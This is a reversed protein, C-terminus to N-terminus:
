LAHILDELGAKQRIEDVQDVFEVLASSDIPQAVWTIRACAQLSALMLEAVSLKTRPLVISLSNGPFVERFVLRWTTEEEESSKACIANASMDVYVSFREGTPDLEAMEEVFTRFRPSTVYLIGITQRFITSGHYIMCIHSDLQYLLESDRRSHERFPLVGSMAETVKTFAGRDLELGWSPLTKMIARLLGEKQFRANTLLDFIFGSRSINFLFHRPTVPLSLAGLAISQIDIRRIFIPNMAEEFDGRTYNLPSTAAWFSTTNEPERMRIRARAIRHQIGLACARDEPDLLTGLEDPDIPRIPVSEMIETIIQIDDLLEISLKEITHVTAMDCGMATAWVSWKATTLVDRIPELYLFDHGHYAERESDWRRLQASPSIDQILRDSNATKAQQARGEEPGIDSLSSIDAGVQEIKSVDSSADPGGKGTNEAVESNAGDSPARRLSSISKRVRQPPRSFSRPVPFCLDLVKEGLPLCGAALWFLCGVSLTDPRLSGRLLRNYPALYLRDLDGSEERNRHRLAGISGYLVGREEDGEEHDLRTSSFKVIRQGKDEREGYRGLLGFILIWLKHIPQWTEWNKIVLEGNRDNSGPLSFARLASCFTVWGTKSPPDRLLDDHKHGVFGPPLQPADTLKPVRVRKLIRTNRWIRLGRSVFLQSPDDVAKLANHRESRLARWLLWPTIIGLLAVLALGAALWTGVASAIDAAQGM